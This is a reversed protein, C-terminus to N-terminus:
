KATSFANWLLDGVYHINNIVRGKTMSQMTESDVEAIGLAITKRYKEDLIVILEDKVFRGEIQRIGPRMIQAGNAVHPVAGMDVIVKPLTNLVADFKLSRFYGM